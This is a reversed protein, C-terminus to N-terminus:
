PVVGQIGSVHPNLTLPTGGHVFQAAIRREYSRVRELAQSDRTQRSLQEAGRLCQRALDRDGLAAFAEASRLMGDLSGQRQARAFATLYSRRAWPTTVARAGAADGIQRTADGVEVLAEWTLSAVAAVEATSWARQANVVDGRSLARNMKAILPVWLTTGDFTSPAAERSVTTAASSQPEMAVGELPPIGLLLTIAGLVATGRLM